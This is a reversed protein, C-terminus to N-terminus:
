HFVIASIDFDELYEPYLSDVIVIDRVQLDYAAGDNLVKMVKENETFVKLIDSDSSDVPFIGFVSLNIDKKNFNAAKMLM